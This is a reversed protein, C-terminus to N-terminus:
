KNKVAGGHYDLRYIEQGKFLIKETGSFATIDGTSEDIYEFDGSKQKKKELFSSSIRKSSLYLAL